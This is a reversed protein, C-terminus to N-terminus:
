GVRISTPSTSLRVQSIKLSRQSAQAAAVQLTGNITAPTHAGNIKTTTNVEIFALFSAALM